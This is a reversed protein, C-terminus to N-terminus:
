SSAQKRRSGSRGPHHTNGTRKQLDGAKVDAVGDGNLELGTALGGNIIIDGRSRGNQLDGSKVDGVGERLVALGTAAAGMKGSARGGVGGVSVWLDRPEVDGVGEGLVVLGHKAHVDEVAHLVVLLPKAPAVVSEGPTM